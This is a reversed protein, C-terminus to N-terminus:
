ILSIWQVGGQLHKTKPWLVIPTPFKHYCAIYLWQFGHFSKLYAKLNPLDKTKNLSKEVIGQRMQMEFNSLRQFLQMINFACVVVINPM